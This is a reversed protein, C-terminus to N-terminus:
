NGLNITMAVYIPATLREIQYQGVEITSSYHAVTVTADRTYSWRSPSGLECRVSRSAADGRRGM